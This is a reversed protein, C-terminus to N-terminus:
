VYPTTPLTLHTYSVTMMGPLRFDKIKDRGRLLNIVICGPSVASSMASLFSTYTVEDIGSCFDAIIGSPPVKSLGVVMELPAKIAIGGQERWMRIPKDRIDVGIVNDASFGRKLAIDLENTTDGILVFVRANKRNSKIRDCICDWAWERARAKTVNQYKPKSM